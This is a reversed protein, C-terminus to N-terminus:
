GLATEGYGCAVDGFEDRRAADEAKRVVGFLDFAYDQAAAADDGDAVDGSPEDALIEAGATEIEDRLAAIVGAGFPDREGDGAIAFEDGGFHDGGAFGVKRVDGAPERVVAIDDFDQIEVCQRGTWDDCRGDGRILGEPM